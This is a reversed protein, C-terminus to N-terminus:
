CVWGTIAFHKVVDQFVNSALTAAHNRLLPQIFLNTPTWLNPDYIYIYVYICTHIYIYMETRSTDVAIAKLMNLSSYLLMAQIISCAPRLSQLIIASCPNCLCIAQPGRAPIMIICTIIFKCLWVYLDVYICMCGSGRLIQRMYKLRKCHFIAFVCPKRRHVVIQM